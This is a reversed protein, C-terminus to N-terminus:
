PKPALTPRTRGTYRTLRVTEFNTMKSNTNITAGTVTGEFFAIGNTPFPSYEESLGGDPQFVIAPFKSPNLENFDPSLYKDGYTPKYIKALQSFPSGKPCFSGHASCLQRLIQTRQIGRLSQWRGTDTRIKHAVLHPTPHPIRSSLPLTPEM